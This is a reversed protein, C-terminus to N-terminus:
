SKASGAYECRRKGAIRVNVKVFHEMSFGVFIALKFNGHLVITEGNV